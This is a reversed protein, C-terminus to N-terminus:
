LIRVAKHTLRGFADTLTLVEGVVAGQQYGDPLDIRDYAQVACSAPLDVTVSSNTIYDGDDSVTRRTRIALRCPYETGEGYVPQGTSDAGSYPYVTCTQRMSNKWIESLGSVEM